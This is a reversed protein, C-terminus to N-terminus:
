RGSGEGALEEARRWADAPVAPLGLERAARRLEALLDRRLGADEPVPPPLPARAVEELFDLLDEALREPDHHRRAHARAREGIAERVDPSALLGDLV